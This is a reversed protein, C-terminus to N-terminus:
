CLLLLAMENYLWLPAVALWVMCHKAFGCCHLARACGFYFQWHKVDASVQTLKLDYSGPPQAPDIM